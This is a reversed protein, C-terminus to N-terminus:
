GTAQRAAARAENFFAAAEDYLRRLDPHGPDHAAMWAAGRALHEHAADLDGLRGHAIAMPLLDFATGGGSREASARLATLACEWEGAHLYATGLTNWYGGEDPDAEAAAQALAVAQAADAPDRGPRSVLFWALDNLADAWRARYGPEDPFETVLGQWLDV